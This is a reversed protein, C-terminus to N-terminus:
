SFEKNLKKILKEHAEIRRELHRRIEEYGKVEDATEPEKKLFTHLLKEQKELGLLLGEKIIKQQTKTLM